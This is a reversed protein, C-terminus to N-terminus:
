ARGKFITTSVNRLAYLIPADVLRLWSHFGQKFDLGCGAGGACAGSVPGNTRAHLSALEVYNADGVVFASGRGNRRNGAAQGDIARNGGEIGQLCPSEFSSGQGVSVLVVPSTSQAMLTASQIDLKQAATGCLGGALTQCRLVARRGFGCIGSLILTALARASAPRVCRSAASSTWRDVGPLHASYSDPTRLMSAARHSSKLSLTHSRPRLTFSGQHIL